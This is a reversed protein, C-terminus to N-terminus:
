PHDDSVARTPSSSATSPPAARSPSAGRYLVSKEVSFTPDGDITTVTASDTQTVENGENDTMTASVIDIKSEGADNAVFQAFSCSFTAGPAM